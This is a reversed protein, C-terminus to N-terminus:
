QAHSWAQSGAPALNKGPSWAQLPRVQHLRAPRAPVLSSVM